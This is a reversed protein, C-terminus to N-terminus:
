LRYINEREDFRAPKKVTIEAVGGGGSEIGAKAETVANEFKGYDCEAENRCDRRFRGISRRSARFHRHGRGKYSLIATSYPYVPVKSGETVYM